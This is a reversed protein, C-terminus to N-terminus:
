HVRAPVYCVFIPVAEAHQLQPCPVTRVNKLYEQLVALGPTEDGYDTVVVSSCGVVQGPMRPATSAPFACCCIFVSSCTDDYTKALKHMGSLNCTSIGRRCKRCCGLM